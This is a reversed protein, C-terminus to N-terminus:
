AGMNMAAVGKYDGKKATLSVEGAITHAINTKLVVLGCPANFFGTSMRSHGGSAGPSIGSESNDLTAVKVWVNTSFDTPNYPPLNGRDALDDMAAEDVDEDADSYAKDVDVTSPAGDTTGTRNYQELIGYTSSGGGQLGWGFTRANGDAATIESDLTEGATNAAGTLDSAYQLPNVDVASAIGSSVRFDEWRAIQQSSMVAREDAMTREYTARALQWAKQVYWTDALAYVEIQSPGSAAAARNDIDIKVQYTKGQRYLRHNVRSLCRGVDVVHNTGQAASALQIQKQCPYYDAVLKRFSPDNASRKKQQVM